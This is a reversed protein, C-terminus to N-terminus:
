SFFPVFVHQFCWFCPKRRLPDKVFHNLLWRKETETKGHLNSLNWPFDTWHVASIQQPIKTQIDGGRRQGSDFLRWHHGSSQLVNTGAPGSNVSNSDLSLQEKQRRRTDEHLCGYALNAM